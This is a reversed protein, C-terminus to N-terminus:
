HCNDPTETSYKLMQNINLDSQRSVFCLTNLTRPQAKELHTRRQEFSRHFFSFPSTSTMVPRATRLFFGLGVYLRTANYSVRRRQFLSQNNKEEQRFWKASPNAKQVTSPLGIRADSRQETQKDNKRGPQQSTTNRTALILVYNQTFTSTSSIQSSRCGIRQAPASAVNKWIRCLLASTFQMANARRVFASRLPDDDFLSEAQCKCKKNSRRRSGISARGMDLTFSTSSFFNLEDDSSFIQPFKASGRNLREFLEFETFLKEVAYLLWSDDATALRYSICYM